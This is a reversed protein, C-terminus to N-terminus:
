LRCGCGMKYPENDEKLKYRNNENIEGIFINNDAIEICKIYLESVGKNNFVNDVISRKDITIEIINNEIKYTVGAGFTGGDLIDEKNVGVDNKFSDYQSTYGGYKKGDNGVGYVVLSCYTVGSQQIFVYKPIKAYLRLNTGNFTYYTNKLLDGDKSVIGTTVEPVSLLKREIYAINSKCNIYTDPHLEMLEEIRFYDGTSYERNLERLVGNLNFYCNKYIRKQNSNGLILFSKNIESFLCNEYTIVSNSDVEYEQNENRPVFTCNKLLSGDKSATVKYGNFGSNFIKLLSGQLVSNSKGNLIASYAFVNEAIVGELGSVQIATLYNKVTADKIVTLENNSNGFGTEYGDSVCNYYYLKQTNNNPQSTAGHTYFGHTGVPESCKAICNRFDVSVIKSDIYSHFGSFAGDGQCNSVHNYPILASHSIGYKFDVSDVFGNITGAGNKGDSCYIDVNKLKGKFTGLTWYYIPIEIVGYEGTINFYTKCVGKQTITGAGQFDGQPLTIDESYYSNPTDKCEEISSCMTLKIGDVVVYARSGGEINPANATTCNSHHHEVIIYKLGTESDQQISDEPVVALGSLIPKEALLSYNEEYELTLNYAKLVFAVASDAVCSNLSEDVDLILKDTEYKVAPCFVSGGFLRIIDNDEVIESLKRFSKIPTVPSLGDNTDVGNIGDIYIHKM